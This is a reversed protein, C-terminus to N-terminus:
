QKILKGHYMTKGSNVVEYIYVGAPWETALIRYKHEAAPLPRTIILRGVADSIRLQADAALHYKIDFYDSGPNPNINLYENKQGAMLGNNSRRMNSDNNPEEIETLVLECPDNAAFSLWNCARTHAWAVTHDRVFRLTDIENSGLSDWRPAQATYRAAIIRILAAGVTFETHEQATLQMSDLILQYTALGQQSQGQQMQHIALEIHAYPSHQALLAETILENRSDSTDEYAAMLLTRASAAEVSGLPITSSGTSGYPDPPAPLTCQSGIPRDVPNVNPSFIDPMEAPVLSSYYYASMAVTAPASSIYRQAIDSYSGFLNGAPNGKEGQVRRVGHTSASTGYVYQAATGFDSVYNNCRFELGRSKSDDFFDYVGNTNEVESLNGINLHQYTNNNVWLPYSGGQRVTVGTQGNNYDRLLSRQFNNSQVFYGTSSEMFVGTSKAYSNIATNVKFVNNTISFTNLGKTSVGIQNDEFTSNQVKCSTASAFSQNEIATAYGKFNSATTAYTIPNFYKDVVISSGVNLIAQNKDDDPYTGYPLTYLFDCGTIRINDVDFMTVQHTPKRMMDENVVFKTRLVFSKNPVLKTKTWVGGKYEWTKGHYSSWGISHRNNTFFADQIEAIGGNLAPNYTLFDFLNVAHLANRIEAGNKMIIKGQHIAPAEQSESSNGLVSIGYWMTTDDFTSILGNDIELTAGPEVIINSHYPMYIRCKVTLKKGAKVVIDNYMKIDFDWVEDRNITLPHTQGEGTHDHNIDEPNTNYVYKRCSLFHANRHWRAIQMPSLHFNWLTYDMINNTSMLPTNCVKTSGTGYMDTLYDVDTEDCTEAPPYDSRNFVHGLGMVHGVEHIFVSAARQRDSYPLKFLNALAIYNTGANYGSHLHSSNPVWEAFGPIGGTVDNNMLFVNLVSENKDLYSYLTGPYYSPSGVYSLVDNFLVGTNHFRIDKAGSANKVVEVQFRSDEVYCTPCAGTPWSPSFGKLMNNVETILAEVGAVDYYNEPPYSPGSIPNMVHIILKITKRVTLPDTVSSSANPIYNEKLKYFDNFCTSAPACNGTVIYEPTESDVFGTFCKLEDSSQAFANTM